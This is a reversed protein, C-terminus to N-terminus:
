LNFLVALETRFRPRDSAAITDIRTVVLIPSLDEEQAIQVNDRMRNLLDMDETIGIPVFMLCAHIKRIFPRMDYFDKLDMMNTRHKMDYGHPLHGGLIFRFFQNCYNEHDLGWTDWLNVRAGPFYNRLRLRYYTQTVHDDCGGVSMEHFVQAGLSTLCANIFSSKGSGALGFFVINMDQVTPDLPTQMIIAKSFLSTDMRIRCHEVYVPSGQKTIVDVRLFEPIDKPKVGKMLEGRVRFKRYQGPEIDQPTRCLIPQM